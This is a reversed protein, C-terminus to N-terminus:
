PVPRINQKSTFPLCTGEELDYVMRGTLQDLALGYMHLHMTLSTGFTEIHHIDEPLMCVGTGPRVVTEGMMTLTAEGEVSGDDTREYFMNYEEGEVGVIVAWTTHDHPPVKKEDQSCSLYLAFRKDEDESLLYIPGNGKEDRVIPFDEPPFLDRRLSLDRVVNRIADLSAHSVGQKAEIARIRDIAASVAEGRPVAMSLTSKGATKEATKETTM